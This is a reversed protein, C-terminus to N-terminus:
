RLPLGPAVPPAAAPKPRAGRARLRKELWQAVSTLAYNVVIFILAVLIFTAILNGKWTSLETAQKLIDSYVILSGLATDKLVVVLQSVLSPLMATIAQPLQITTLVQTPTLGIALGAESQGKPLSHVGSRILEAIVSGNYFTLGVVVGAFSQWASPLRLVFIFFYWAFVMMLLVPVARFFEVIVSCVINIVRISSLRGIGLLVGLIGATIVSTLAAALTAGLGPLLYDTWVRSDDVFPSLKAPTLEKRLGFIVAVVAAALLVWAVITIILHLRRAKPGPADFLVTAQSM